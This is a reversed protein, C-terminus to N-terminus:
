VCLGDGGGGRGCLVTLEVTDLVFGAGGSPDGFVHLRVGLVSDDALGVVDFTVEGLDGVTPAVTLTIRSEPDDTSAQSAAVIQGLQEM